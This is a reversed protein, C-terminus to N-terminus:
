EKKTLQATAPFATSDVTSQDSTDGFLTELENFSPERWGGGAATQQTCYSAATSPLMVDSPAQLWTLGTWRDHVTGGAIEYHAGSVPAGGRVCRVVTTGGLGGGGYADETMVQAAYAVAFESPEN